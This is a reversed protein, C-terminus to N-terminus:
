RCGLLFYVGAVALQIQDILSETHVSNYVMLLSVFMSDNCVTSSSSVWWM